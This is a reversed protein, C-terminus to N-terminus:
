RVKRKGLVEEMIIRILRQIMNKSASESVAANSLRESTSKLWELVDRLCPCPCYDDVNVVRLGLGILVLCKSQSRGFMQSFM